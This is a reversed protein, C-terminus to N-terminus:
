KNVTGSVAAASRSGYENSPDRYISHYHGDDSGLNGRTSFEIILSPGQIRYYIDDEGDTHGNWAFHLDDIEAEIEALRADAAPEPMIGTWASITEMLRNRDEQNWETVPSGELPPIVGDRGAGTVTGRPRNGVTASELLRSDLSRVMRLGGSVFEEMPQVIAGEDDYSAPEIGLFTPSMFSRGNAVTINVALHHGGYQWGWPHSDSPEGFFALWYNEDDWGMRSARSSDELVSEARVIGELLAVGKESLAEGLFDGMAHVQVQDLDGLRVGNREFDLMGAPLNSWNARDPDNFELVAEERQEDSLTELFAQAAGTASVPSTQSVTESAPPIGQAPSSEKAPTNQGLSVEETTSNVAQEYSPESSTCGVALILTAACLVVIIDLPHVLNGVTKPRRVELKGIRRGITLVM